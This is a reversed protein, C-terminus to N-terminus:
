FLDISFTKGTTDRDRSMLSVSAACKQRSEFTRILGLGLPPPVGMGQGRAMPVSAPPQSTADM